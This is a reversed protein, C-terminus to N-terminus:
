EQVEWPVSCPSHVRGWRCWGTAGDAPHPGATEHFPQDVSGPERCKRLLRFPREMTSVQSLDRWLRWARGTVGRGDGALVGGGRGRSTTPDVM